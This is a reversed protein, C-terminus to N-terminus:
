RVMTLTLIRNNVSVQPGNDSVQTDLRWRVEIAQGATVTAIGQLYIDSPASLVTRTRESNPILVGNAYLSFTAEHYVPTSVTSLGKPYVTGNVVTGVDTFGTIAGLNSTIDGNYTSSTTNAIGGNCTYMVFSALRRLNVLSTPNAPTSITGPGFTIAGLKTLLRGTIICSAAVSIAASNSIITGQITTNPGLGIAGQAIWFVNEPKAGNTLTVVTGEGTDFAAACKFIFLPNTQGNGNLRLTDTISMAGAVTYVGPFLTEGSGFVLPHPGTTPIANLENYILGLDACLDATNVGVTSIANPMDCQASFSVSYTGAGPTVTMGTIQADTTSTTTTNAGATVSGYRNTNALVFATTALQTTNTGQAATPALSSGTFVPSDSFVALTTGTENTLATSLSLSTFSGLTSAIGVSTVEGLLPFNSSSIVDWGIGNYFNFQNTSTNYAVLGNAPSSILDREAQTMRPILIGKTTTRMELISSPDPIIAVGSIGMSQAYSNSANFFLALLLIIKNNVVM